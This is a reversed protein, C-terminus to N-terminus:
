SGPIRNCVLGAMLLFSGSRSSSIFRLQPLQVANDNNLIGTLYSADPLVNNKKSITALAM